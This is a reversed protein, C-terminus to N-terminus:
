AGPQMLARKAETRHAPTIHGGVVALAAAIVSADDTFGLGVFVDPIMDVPMVFYAIAGTLVMKVRTPTASDTACYYAALVDEMFPVRGLASRVKWWFRTKVIREARAYPVPLGMEEAAPESQSM